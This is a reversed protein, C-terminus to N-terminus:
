DALLHPNKHEGPRAMVLQAGNFLPLLFEWVSVDFSFPTKQLVRDSNTLALKEQMWIIRNIIADQQNGAGKPKGSTGSTYILYALNQPSLPRVRINNTLSSSSCLRLEANFDAADAILAQTLLRSLPRIFLGADEDVSAPRDSTLDNISSSLVGDDDRLRNLIAQTTILRKAQSDELMFVLRAVPYEPDLPLYAAGSKLVGLLSVVMEISRDLAIAVIDEPGINQSILYHALQNSRRDLERYSVEEDEFVVAIADPTKEVQAAFLDPVTSSPLIKYTNNFDVILNTIERDDVILLDGVKGNIGSDIVSEILTIIRTLHSKLDQNTYLEHNGDVILEIQNINDDVYFAVNFDRVQGLSLNERSILLGDPCNIGIKPLINIQFFVLEESKFYEDKLHEHRYYQHRSILRLRKTVHQCVELISDQNSVELRLISINSRM